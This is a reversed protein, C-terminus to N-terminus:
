HKTPLEIPFSGVSAPPGAATTFTGDGNGLLVSVTNSKSDAIALDLKGDGNFDGMAIGWEGCRPASIPPLTRFTGDGNGLLIVLSGSNLDPEGIAIDPKGDGSFDGIAQCSPDNAPPLGLNPRTAPYTFAVPKRPQAVPFYVFNSAAATGPNSVTIAATGAAAVDAAPVSATLQSSSVYTTNLPTGAWRITAGSAFGTGNVTLQFTGAGPAVSSPVLPQNVFPVPNQATAM